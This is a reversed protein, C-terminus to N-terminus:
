ATQAAEALFHYFYVATKVGRRLHALHFHEDPAHRNDDLGFPMLVFPAGLAQQLTAIIPLSGGMRSRVPEVGWGLTYARVAAMIEASDFPTVAANSGSRVDVSVHVTDPALDLVYATFLEGIEEADQNAVLRLSFAASAEAPIITKGQPSGGWIGTIECTPRATMRELLTYDPEGWPRPAGTEARWLKETYPVQRLLDREAPSMSLVRDYFGPVQVWGFPDHLKAIIAALVHIPNHVSGGYSGSHLDRQPGSVRMTGSVVGRLAYDITPQESGIMAGDSVVILDAALLAREAAVFAPLSPSGVEEEGDFCIKVNVPLRGNTALMAELAKVQAFLQGKNDSAGRAYVKGDRIVPDFPFHTWKELPDPPQVDYHGYLLVTPAAAGAHLWDAYVVPHGGTELLRAHELGSATLHDRLWEAARRVDPAHDPSPSISPIRLFTLLQEVFQQQHTEAYSVATQMSEVEGM